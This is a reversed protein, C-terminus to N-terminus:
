CRRSSTPSSSPSSRTPSSPTRGRKKRQTLLLVVRYSFYVYAILAIPFTFYVTFVQYYNIGM